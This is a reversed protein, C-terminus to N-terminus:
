ANQTNVLHMLLSLIFNGAILQSTWFKIIYHFYVNIVITEEHQLAVTSSGTDCNQPFYTRIGIRERAQRNIKSFLFLFFVNKDLFHHSRRVFPVCLCVFSFKRRDYIDKEILISYIYTYFLWINRVLSNNVGM